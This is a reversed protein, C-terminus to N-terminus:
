HGTPRQVGTRIQWGVSMDSLGDGQTGKRAVCFLKQAAFRRNQWDWLRKPLRIKLFVGLFVMLLGFAGSGDTDAVAFGAQGMLAKLELDRFHQHWAKEKEVDGILGYPNDVYRYRYAEEGHKRVYWFRHLRPFVYKLNGDDLFSFLHKRPVSVILIGNKKLVRWIEQLVSLQDHVHELVEFMTVVDFFEDAFPIGSDIPLVSLDRVTALADRNKDVGFAEIPKVRKLRRLFTGDFCGYDLVRAGDEIFEFGYAWNLEGTRFPNDPSLATKM